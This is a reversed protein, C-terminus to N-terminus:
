LLTNYCCCIYLYTCNHMEWLMQIVTLSVLLGKFFFFFSLCKLATNGTSWWMMEMNCPNCEQNRQQVEMIQEEVHCNKSQWILKQCRFASSKPHHFSWWTIPHWHLGPIILFAQMVKLHLFFLNWYGYTLNVVDWPCNLEMLQKKCPFISLWWTGGAVGDWSFSIPDPFGPTFATVVQAHSTKLMYRTACAVLVPCRKVFIFAPSLIIMWM